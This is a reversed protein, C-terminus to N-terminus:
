ESHAEKIGDLLENVARQAEEYGTLWRHKEAFPVGGHAGRRFALWLNFRRRVTRPWAEAISMTVVHDVSWACFGCTCGGRERDPQHDRAHVLAAARLEEVLPGRGPRNDRARVQQSQGDDAPQEPMPCEATEGTALAAESATM